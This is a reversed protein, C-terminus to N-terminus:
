VPNPPLLCSPTQSCCGRAKQDLLRRLFGELHDPGDVVVAAAVLLPVSQHASLKCPPTCSSCPACHLDTALGPATASQPLPFLLSSVHLLVHVVHRVTCIQQLALRLQVRLCPFFCSSCSCSHWTHIHHEPPFPLLISLFPTVLRNSHSSLEVGPMRFVASLADPFLDLFHPIDFQTALGAGSFTM